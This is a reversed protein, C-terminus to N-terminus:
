FCEGWTLCYPRSRWIGLTDCGFSRHIIDLGIPPIESTFVASLGIIPWELLPCARILDRTKSFETSGPGPVPLDPSPWDRPVAPTLHALDM